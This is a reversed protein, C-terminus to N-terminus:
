LGVEKMDALLEKGKDTLWSCRATTGHKAYKKDNAWYIFFMAPLDEYSPHNSKEIAELRQRVYGAVEESNGCGCLGIIDIMYDAKSEHFCGTDDVYGDMVKKLKDLM